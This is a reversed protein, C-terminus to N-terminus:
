DGGERLKRLLRTSSKGRPLKIRLARIGAVVVRRREDANKDVFRKQFDDLSILIAAPKNRREVMIPEGSKELARLVRGLSQRLALSDVKKM